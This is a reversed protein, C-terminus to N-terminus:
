DLSPIRRVDRRFYNVGQEVPLTLHLVTGVINPAFLTTVSGFV